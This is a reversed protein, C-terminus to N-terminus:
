KTLVNADPEPYRNKIIGDILDKNQETRSLWIDEATKPLGNPYYELNLIPHEKLINPNYKVFTDFGLNFEEVIELFTIPEEDINESLTKEEELESILEDQIEDLFEPLYAEIFKSFYDLGKIRAEIEEKFEGYNQDYYTFDYDTIIWEKQMEYTKYDWM